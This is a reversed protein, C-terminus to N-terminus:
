GQCESSHSVSISSLWMISLTWLPTKSTKNFLHAWKLLVSRQKDLELHWQVRHKELHLLLDNCLYKNELNCLCGTIYVHRGNVKNETTEQTRSCLEVQLRPFRCCHLATQKQRNTNEYKRGFSYWFRCGVLLTLVNQSTRWKWSVIPVNVKKLNLNPTM